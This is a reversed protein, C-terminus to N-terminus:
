QDSRYPRNEAHDKIANLAILNANDYGNFDQGLPAGVNGLVYTDALAFYLSTRVEVRLSGYCGSGFRESSVLVSIEADGLSLTESSYDEVVNFAALKFQDEAYRKSEGINTWCGDSAGDYVKVIAQKFVSPTVWPEEACATSVFVATSVATVCFKKM